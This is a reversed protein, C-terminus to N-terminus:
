RKDKDNVKIGNIPQEEWLTHISEKGGVEHLRATDQTIYIRFRTGVAFMSAARVTSFIYNSHLEEPLGPYQKKLNDLMLQFDQDHVDKVLAHISKRFSLTSLFLNQAPAPYWPIVPEGDPAYDAREAEAVYEPTVSYLYRM